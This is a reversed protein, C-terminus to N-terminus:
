EQYSIVVDCYLFSSYTQPKKEDNSRCTRQDMSIRENLNYFATDLDNYTIKM